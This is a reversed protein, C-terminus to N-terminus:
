GFFLRGSVQEVFKSIPPYRYVPQIRIVPYKNVVPRLRIRGIKEPVSVYFELLVIGYTFLHKGSIADMRNKKGM